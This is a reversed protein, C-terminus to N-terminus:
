KWHSMIEAHEETFYQHPYIGYGEYAELAGIVSEFESEFLPTDPKKYCGGLTYCPGLEMAGKTRQHIEHWKDHGPYVYNMDMAWDISGERFWREVEIGWAKYQPNLITFTPFTVVSLEVSVTDRIQNLLLAMANRYVHEEDYGNVGSRVYDLQIPRNYEEALARVMAVMHARVEPELIRFYRDENLYPDDAPNVYHSKCLNIALHSKIAMADFRELLGPVDDDFRRSAKAALIVADSFGAKDIRQFFADDLDRPLELWISKM